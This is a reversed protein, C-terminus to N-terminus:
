RASAEPDGQWRESRELVTLSNNTFRQKLRFGGEALFEEVAPWLGRQGEAEGREGSTTTNHLVIYRRARAAHRRLEAKLQECTHLTDIFLLDTEELEARLPDEQRFVFETHGALAKLGDVEPQRVPDYCVLKGPQAWLFALTALGTRTGLETVHRCERALEHLTPLHENIDSALACAEHYREGLIWSRVEGMAEFVANRSHLRRSLLLSLNNTADPHAPDLQLVDRLAKEAAESDRGEQLLAYSFLERAKVTRPHQAVLSEALQRAATFDRRALLAHGRLLGAELPGGPLKELAAAAEELGAPDNLAIAANGLGVWAPVFDPREQLALRWQPRAEAARNQRLYLAALNHRGKYGRLSPDVSAFHHDPSTTLLRLFCAEAAAYEGLDTSLQGERFLLEADDPYHQRGARCAALAETRQGLAAHCGAILGHLKRVISDSPHSRELSRRLVPLAEPFRRLEQLICGLNFLLFPEDPQDELDLRLLRLDRQLKKGRLAPDQYGTHLIVVDAWCVEGGLKRVSPLIQEHVRYEWRIADHRRFLRVHDVVTATGGAPDPLCVCKMSYAANDNGLSALLARLKERNTDDIRDDADLWFIWDGTAHHLSENRAAAFSDCWRFDVLKVKPGFSLAIERTRHTSGTDVIVAEDFLDLASRLCDGLNAQENKVIM